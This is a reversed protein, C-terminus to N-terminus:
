KLGQVAATALTILVVWRIIPAGLGKKQTRPQPFAQQNDLTDALTSTSGDVLQVRRGRWRWAEPTAQELGDGVHLALEELLAAPLRARAKCYNGTNVNDDEAQRSLAFAMVVQAVAQRCSKAPSRVQWLFAWRTVAPTWLSWRRRGLRVQHQAVLREVDAVGLVEAFPWGAGTM